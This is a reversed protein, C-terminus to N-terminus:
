RFMYPLSFLPVSILITSVASQFLFVAVLSWRISGILKYSLLFAITMLTSYIIGTLVMAIIIREPSNQLYMQVVATYISVLPSYRTPNNITFYAFSLKPLTKILSFLDYKWQYLPHLNDRFNNPYLWSLMQLNYYLKGAKNHEPDGLSDPWDIEKDIVSSNLDLLFIENDRENDPTKALRELAERGKPSLLSYVFRNNNDELDNNKGSLIMAYFLSPDSIFNSHKLTYSDMRHIVTNVTDGGFIDNSIFYRFGTYGVLNILFLSLAVMWIKATNFRNMASQCYTRINKDM